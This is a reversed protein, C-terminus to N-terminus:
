QNSYFEYGEAELQVRVLEDLDAPALFRRKGSSREFAYGNPYRKSCILSEGDIDALTSFFQRKLAYQRPLNYNRRARERRRQNNLLLYYLKNLGWLVLFVVFYVATM